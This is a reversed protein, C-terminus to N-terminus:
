CKKKDNIWSEINCIFYVGVFVLMFLNVLVNAILLGWISYNIIAVTAIAVRVLALILVSFSVVKKRGVYYFVNMVVLYIANICLSTVIYPLYELAEGYKDLYFHSVIFVSCFYVLLSTLVIVLVFFCLNNRLKIHNESLLRNIIPTFYLNVVTAMIIIPSSLQYIFMYKGVYSAGLYKMLLMRDLMGNVWFGIAQPMLIVGDLASDRMKKFQFNGSIRERVILYRIAIFSQCLTGLFVTYFWSNIGYDLLVAILFLGNTIVVGFINCKGYLKANESCQADSLMYFIATRLLSTFVLALWQLGSFYEGGFTIGVIALLIAVLLSNMMHASSAIVYLELQKEFFNIRSTARINNSIVLTLVELVVYYLTLTGFSEVDLFKAVVLFTVFPLVKSLGENVLYIIFKM